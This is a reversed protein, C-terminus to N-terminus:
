LSPDVFKYEQIYRTQETARENFLSKVQDLKIQVPPQVSESGIKNGQTAQSFEWLNWGLSCLLLLGFAALLVLWDRVPRIRQGYKLKSLPLTPKKM